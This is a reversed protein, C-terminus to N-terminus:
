RRREVVIMLVSVKIAGTFSWYIDSSYKLVYTVVTGTVVLVDHRM